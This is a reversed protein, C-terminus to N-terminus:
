LKSFHDIKGNSCFESINQVCINLGNPTETILHGERKAICLKSTPLREHMFVSNRYDITKDCDGHIILIRLGFVNSYKHLRKLDQIGNYVKLARWQAKVVQVNNRPTKMGNTIYEMLRKDTLKYDPSLNWELNIRVQKRFEDLTKCKRLALNNALYQKSLETDYFPMDKGSEPTTSCLILHAISQPYTLAYKQTIMGGMSLGIIDIKSCKLYSILSYIDDAMDQVSLQLRIKSGIKTKNNEFVFKSRGIGRHDFTIIPRNKPLNQILNRWPSGDQVQGFGPVLILPICRLSDLKNNLFNDHYVRYALDVFYGRTASPRKVAIRLCQLPPLTDM